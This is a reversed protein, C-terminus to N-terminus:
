SPAFGSDNKLMFNGLERLFVQVEANTLGKTGDMRFEMDTGLPNAAESLDFENQGRNKGYYREAM